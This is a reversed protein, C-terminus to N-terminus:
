ALGATAAKIAPRFFPCDLPDLAVPDARCKRAFNEGSRYRGAGAELDGM